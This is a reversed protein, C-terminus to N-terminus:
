DVNKSRRTFIYSEYFLAEISPQYLIVEKNTLPDKIADGIKQGKAKQEPTPSKYSQQEKGYVTAYVVKGKVSPPNEDDWGDDVDVGCPVLVRDQYQVFMNESRADDDPMRTVHYSKFKVGDFDIMKDGIQKPEQNVIEWELTVM